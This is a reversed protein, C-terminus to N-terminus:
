GVNYSRRMVNLERTHWPPGYTGPWRPRAMPSLISIELGMRRTRVGGRGVTGCESRNRVVPVAPLVRRPVNVSGGRGGYGGPWGGGEPAPQAGRSHEPWATAGCHCTPDPKNAMSM